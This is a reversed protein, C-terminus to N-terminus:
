FIMRDNEIMNNLRSKLRINEDVLDQNLDQIIEERNEEFIIKRLKKFDYTSKRSPYNSVLENLINSRFNSWSDSEIYPLVDCYLKGAVDNLITQAETLIREKFTKLLEEADEYAQPTLEPCKHPIM